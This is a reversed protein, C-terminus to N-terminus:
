SISHWNPKIQEIVERLGITTVANVYRTPLSNMICALLYRDSMKSDFQELLENIDQFQRFHEGM